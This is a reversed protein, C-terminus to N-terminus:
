SEDNHKDPFGLDLSSQESEKEKNVQISAENTYYKKM